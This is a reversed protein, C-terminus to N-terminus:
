PLISSAPLGLDQHIKNDATQLTAAQAHLQSLWTGM